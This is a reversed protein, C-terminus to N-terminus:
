KNPQILGHRQAFKVAHHACFTRHQFRGRADYFTAHWRPPTHKGHRVDSCNGRTIHSCIGYKATKRITPNTM